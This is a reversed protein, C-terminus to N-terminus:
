RDMDSGDGDTLEPRFRGTGFMAIKGEGITGPLNQGAFFAIRKELFSPRAVTQSDAQRKSATLYTQASQSSKQRVIAHALLAYHEAVDAGGVTNKDFATRKLHKHPFNMEM